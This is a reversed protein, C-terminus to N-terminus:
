IWDFGKALLGALGLAIGILGGWTIYFHTDVKSILSRLDTEVLSLRTDIGQATTNSISVVTELKSAAANIKADVEERTIISETMEPREYAGYTDTYEVSYLAQVPVELAPSYGGAAAFGAIASAIYSTFAEKNDSDDDM